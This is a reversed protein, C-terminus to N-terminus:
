PLSVEAKGTLIIDGDQTTMKAQVRVVPVGFESNDIKEIVEGDIYTVDGEFAPSRFQTKSHWVYGDHGAWYAVTDVFWANMSAGYGYAGGMGINEAKEANIHGSSPGYFLGDGMRPDVKRAEYDYSMDAGFGSDDKAPDRVGEPPNWHVSGWINERHARRELAFTVVSHPGIVRRPLKDGVKVDAYRPSKGERNSLIWEHRLKHVAALEDKTWRKPARKEKDYMGHKKAEEVLYRIATAQEKAFLEGHQDRHITNGRSFVTPGAFKTDAVTYGDFRREQVLRDGPKLLKGYWWWEEGGFILHTGPIKGVCAPHCGHGYDMAVTMSQPAVLGGFKSANAFDQDWHIPNPYDLAQAWRRIDTGTVPEWLEAYVFREGVFRDVDSLDLKVSDDKTPAATM